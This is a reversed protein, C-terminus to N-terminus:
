SCVVVELAGRRKAEQVAQKKAERYLGNVWFLKATDTENRCFSFAWSGRGSPRRGHAFEYERTNVEVNM